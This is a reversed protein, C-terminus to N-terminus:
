IESGVEDSFSPKLVCVIRHRRVFGIHLFNIQNKMKSSKEKRGRAM